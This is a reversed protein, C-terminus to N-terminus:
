SLWTSEGVSAQTPSSSGIVGTAAASSMAPASGSPAAWSLIMFQAPWKVQISAGVAVPRDDGFEDGARGSAFRALRLARAFSGAANAM